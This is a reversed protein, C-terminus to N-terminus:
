ILEHVESFINYYLVTNFYVISLSEGMSYSMHIERLELHKMYGQMLIKTDSTGM